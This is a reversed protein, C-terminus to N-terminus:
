HLVKRKRHIRNYANWKTGWYACHWKYWNFWPKDPDAGVHDEETRICGEPCESEERPEPIIKDFDIIYDPKEPNFLDETEVLERAIMQIIIDADDPKKLNKFKVVTKVHNPM